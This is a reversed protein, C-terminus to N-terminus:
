QANVPKPIDFGSVLSRRVAFLVEGRYELAQLHEIFLRPSYFKGVALLTTIGVIMVVSHSLFLRGRLGLQYM